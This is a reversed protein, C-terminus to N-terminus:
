SPPELFNRLAKVAERIRTGISIKSRDVLSADRTNHQVEKALALGEEWRIQPQGINLRTGTRGAVTTVRSSSSEHESIWEARKHLLWQADHYRILRANISNHCASRLVHEHWQQVRSAWCLSWLGIKDCM